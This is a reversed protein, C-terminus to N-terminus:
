RGRVGGCAFTRPGGLLHAKLSEHADWLSAALLVAVIEDTDRRQGWRTFHSLVVRSFPICLCAGGFRCQSCPGSVHKGLVIACCRHCDGRIIVGISLCGIIQVHRGFQFQAEAPGASICRRGIRGAGGQYVSNRSLWRSLLRSLLDVMIASLGWTGRRNGIVLRM